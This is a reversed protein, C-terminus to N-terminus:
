HICTQNVSRCAVRRGSPSAGLRDQASHAWRMPTASASAAARMTGGAPGGVGASEGLPAGAGAGTEGRKALIAGCPTELAGLIRNRLRATIAALSFARRPVVHQQDVRYEREEQETVGIGPAGMLLPQGIGGRRGSGRPTAPEVIQAEQREREVLHLDDPGGALRPATGQGAGLLPRLPADGAAAHAACMDVTADLAAANNVVGVAQVLGADAIPDHFNATRQVINAHTQGWPM